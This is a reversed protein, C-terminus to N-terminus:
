KLIRGDVSLCVKQEHKSREYWQHVYDRHGGKAECQGQRYAECGGVILLCIVAILVMPIWDKM